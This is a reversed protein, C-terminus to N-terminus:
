RTTNWCTWTSSRRRAGCTALAGSRGGEARGPLRDGRHLRFEELRAPFGHPFWAQMAPDLPSLIWGPRAAEYADGGQTWALWLGFLLGKGHAYDALTALGSPFKKRDTRWDGVHRYWGADIGVMEMGVRDGLDIMRRILAEDVVMGDGWSNNVLLPLNAKSAPRM